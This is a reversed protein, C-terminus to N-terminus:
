RRARGWRTADEWITVERVVDPFYGLILAALAEVTTNTDTTRNLDRGHYSVRHAEWIHDLADTDVVMFGDPLEETEAVVEVTYDHWHDESWREALGEIHHHARFRYRRAVAIM